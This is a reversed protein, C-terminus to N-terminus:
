IKYIQLFLLYIATYQSSRKVLIHIISTITSSSSLCRPHSVGMVPNSILHVELSWPIWCTFILSLTLPTSTVFWSYFLVTICVWVVISFPVVKYFLVVYSRPTYPTWFSSSTVTFLLRTFRRHLPSLRPIKVVIEPDPTLFWSSLLNPTLILSVLTPWSVSINLLAVVFPKFIFILTRSPSSIQTYLNIFQLPLEVSWGYLKFSVFIQNVVLSSSFNFPIFNNVKTTFLRM